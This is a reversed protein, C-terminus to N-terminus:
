IAENFAGSQAAIIAHSFSLRSIDSEPAATKCEKPVFQPKMRCSLEILGHLKANDEM